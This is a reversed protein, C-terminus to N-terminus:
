SYLASLVSELFSRISKALVMKKNDPCHVKTPVTSNAPVIYKVMHHNQFVHTVYGTLSLLIRDKLQFYVTKRDSTDTAEPVQILKLSPSNTEVAPGKSKSKLARESANQKKQQSTDAM